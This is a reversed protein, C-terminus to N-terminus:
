VTNSVDPQFAPTMRLIKKFVSSGNVFLEARGNESDIIAAVTTPGKGSIDVNTFVLNNSTGDSARYSLWVSPGGSKLYLSYDRTRSDIGKAIVYGDNGLAQDVLAFITLDTTINPHEAIPIVRPKTEYDFVMPEKQLYEIMGALRSDSREFFNSGYSPFELGGCVAGERFLVDTCSDESTCESIM